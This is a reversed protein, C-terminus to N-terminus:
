RGLCHSSLCMLLIICLAAAMPVVTPRARYPWARVVPPRDTSQRAEPLTRSTAMQPSSRRRPNVYSSLFPTPYATTSNCTKCRDRHDRAARRGCVLSTSLSLFRRHFPTPINCLQRSPAICSASSDPVLLCCCPPLLPSSLLLLARLHAPM